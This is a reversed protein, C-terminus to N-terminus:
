RKELKRLIKNKLEQKDVSYDSNKKENQSIIKNLSIHLLSSKKKYSCCWKCILLHYKLRIKQIFTIRGFLEREIEFTAEPCSLIFFHLIKKSIKNM